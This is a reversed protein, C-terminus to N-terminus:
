EQIEENQQLFKKENDQLANLLEGDNDFLNMMELASIQYDDEDEDEDDFVDKIKKRIKKLGKPLEAPSPTYSKHLGGNKNKLEHEIAKRVNTKLTAKENFDFGPNKWEINPNSSEENM